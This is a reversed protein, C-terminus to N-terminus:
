VLAGWRQSRGGHPSGRVGRARQGKIMIVYQM